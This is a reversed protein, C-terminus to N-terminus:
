EWYAKEKRLMAVHCQNCYGVRMGAQWEEVEEDQESVACRNCTPLLCTNCKYKTISEYIMCKRDHREEM